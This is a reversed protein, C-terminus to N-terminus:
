YALAVAVGAESIIQIKWFEETSDKQANRVPRPQLLWPGNPKQAQQTPRQLL